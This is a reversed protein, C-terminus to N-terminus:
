RRILELERVLAAFESPCPEWVLTQTQRIIRAAKRGRSRPRFYCLLRVRLNKAKGIYILEGNGDVMGYVGPSGSCRLRVRTRLEGGRKGHVQQCLPTASTPGLVLPGFDGFRGSDALM